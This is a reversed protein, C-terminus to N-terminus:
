GIHLSALSVALDILSLGHAGQVLYANHRECCVPGDAARGLAIQQLHPVWLAQLFRWRLKKPRQCAQKDAGLM